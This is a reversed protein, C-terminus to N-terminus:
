SQLESTHEESRLAGLATAVAPTFGLRTVIDAGRECRTRVLEAAANPGAAALSAVRRARQYWSAGSAAHAMAFRAAKFYNPWDVRMRDRKAAREDGGFLEFVRAANSSCGVDKLMLAYYLDRRDTLPLGMRDALRMGILCTRLAHGFPHGETIDLAFSLASFVEAVSVSSNRDDARTSDSRM